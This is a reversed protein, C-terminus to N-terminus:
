NQLDSLSHSNLFFSQMQGNQINAPIINGQEGSFLTSLWSLSVNLNKTHHAAEFTVKKDSHCVYIEIHM